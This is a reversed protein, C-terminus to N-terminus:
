RRVMTFSFSRGRNDCGTGEIRGATSRHGVFNAQYGTRDTMIAEFVSGNLQGSFDPGGARLNQASFRGNLSGIRFAHESRALDASNIVEIEWVDGNSSNTVPPPIDRRPNNVPPQTPTGPQSVQGGSVGRCPVLEKEMSQLNATIGTGASGLCRKYHWDRDTDFLQPSVNLKKQCQLQEWEKALKVAKDAYAQCASDLEAGGLARQAHLAPRYGSFGGFIATIILLRILKKSTLM